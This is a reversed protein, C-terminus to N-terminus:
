PRARRACDAIANANILGIHHVGPSNGLQAGTAGDIEEALLGVDNAIATVTEFCTRARDV